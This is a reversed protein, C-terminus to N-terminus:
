KKTKPEERKVILLKSGLKPERKLIIKKFSHVCHFFELEQEIVKSSKTYSEVSKYRVGTNKM